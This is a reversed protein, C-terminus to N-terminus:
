KLNFKDLEQMIIHSGYNILNHFKIPIKQNLKLNMNCDRYVSGRYKGTIHCDDRFKWMM